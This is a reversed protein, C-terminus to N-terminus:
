VKLSVPLRLIRKELWAASYGVRILKSLSM